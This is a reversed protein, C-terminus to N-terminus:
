HNEVAWHGNKKRITYTKQGNIWIIAYAWHFPVLRLARKAIGRALQKTKVQRDLDTTKTGFIRIKAEM